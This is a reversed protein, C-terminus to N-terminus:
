AHPAQRQGSQGDDESMADMPKAYKGKGLRAIVPVLAFSIAVVVLGGVLAVPGGSVAGLVNQSAAMAVVIPIYLSSWFSLGAQARDDFCGARQLRYVCFVLLLMAIGVGGVNADIGMAMGLVAGLLKGVLLCAALLAVGYIVM